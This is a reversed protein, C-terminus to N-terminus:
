RRSSSPAAATESKPGRDAPFPAKITLVPCPAKRMVGEAVSGMLLHSLGRRGHTGIVVLDAKAEDALRAIETAPDGRLLKSAMRIRPDASKLQELRATLQETEGAPTTVVMGEGVPIIPQPAVHCVVVEAGFDRALACALEFAPRSLDSFDTAHLIKRIPFM